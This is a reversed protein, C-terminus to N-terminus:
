GEDKMREHPCRYAPFYDALTPRLRNEENWRAKDRCLRDYMEPTPTYRWVCFDHTRNSFGIKFHLLSDDPRATAGGGLHFVRLGRQTAWERVEDFLLKMPALRLFADRTAGLHFQLIGNCEVFLAGCAIQGAMRCVFLHWCPGLCARLNAFYSPPFFYDAAAGVRLMTEHYMAIFESLHAVDRDYEVTVGQRRLKNIGEKHNRRYHARQEESPATLDLSVTRALAKCEGLGALWDIQQPMLPHLRSFVSVVGWQELMERLASRFNAGIKEPLADRSAVPGAYGYVSTADRRGIGSGNIGIAEELPRLLLPLAVTEREESWVLLRATGEGQKEALRHYGPSHYFDYAATQALVAMWESPQDTGLIRLRKM